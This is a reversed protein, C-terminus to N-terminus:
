PHRRRVWTVLGLGLAGLLAANPVPAVAAAVSVNDFWLTGRASTAGVGYFRFEVPGSLEGGISTLDWVAHNTTTQHDLFSFSEHTLFGDFSMHVVGTSPGFADRGFDFSLSELSMEAGANPTLSFSAYGIGPITTRTNWSDSNFINNGPEFTITTRQFPSFTAMAPQLDVENFQGPGTPSGTFQYIGIMDGHAAITAFSVVAVAAFLRVGRRQTQKSLSM